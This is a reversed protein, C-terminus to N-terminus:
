RSRRWWWLLTFAVCLGLLSLWLSDGEGQSSAPTAEETSNKPAQTSRSTQKATRKTGPKITAGLAELRATAAERNLPGRGIELRALYAGWALVADERRGEAEAVEAEAAVAWLEAKDSEWAGVLAAKAEDLKGAKSLVFARMAQLGATKPLGAEIALLQTAAADHEGRAIFMAAGLARNAPTPDRELMNAWKAMPAEDTGGASLVATLVPLTDHIATGQKVAVAAQATATRLDGVALSARAWASRTLSLGTRAAILREALRTAKLPSTVLSTFDIRLAQAVDCGPDRATIAKTVDQAETVANVLFLDRALEAAECAMPGRALELGLDRAGKVEEALTMARAVYVKTRAALPIDLGKAEIGKLATPLAAQARLKALSPREARYLARAARVHALVDYPAKQLASQILSIGQNVQGIALLRRATAVDARAEVAAEERDEASPDRRLWGWGSERDSLLRELHDLAPGSKPADTEVRLAVREGRWRDTTVSARSPLVRVVINGGPGEFTAQIDNGLTMARLVFGGELGSPGPDIFVRSRERWAEPVHYALPNTRVDPGSASAPKPATPLPDQGRADPTLLFLAFVLTSGILHRTQM